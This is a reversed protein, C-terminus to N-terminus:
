HRIWGTTVSTGNAAQVRVRLPEVPLADVRFWGQEDVAASHTGSTTEVEADGLTGVALGRLVLRGHIEEIQLELAVEGSEFSLMRPGPQEARVEAPAASYSDRLLEALEDDLRRTTFAARASEDVLDPVADVENAIRRLQEMLEDDTTM